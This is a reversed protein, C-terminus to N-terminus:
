VRTDLWLYKAHSKVLTFFVENKDVKKRLFCKHGIVLREINNDSDDKM